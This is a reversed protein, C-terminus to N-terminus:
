VVLNTNSPSPGTQIMRLNRGIVVIQNDLGSAHLFKFTRNQIRSCLTIM